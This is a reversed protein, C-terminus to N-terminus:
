EATLDDVTKMFENINFSGKNDIFSKIDINLAMAAEAIVSQLNGNQVDVMKIDGSENIFNVLVGIV